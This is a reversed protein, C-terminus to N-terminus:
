ETMRSSDLSSASANFWVLVVKTAEIECSSRLGRWPMNPVRSNMLSVGSSENWILMNLEKFAQPCVSSSVILYTNTDVTCPIVVSKTGQPKATM